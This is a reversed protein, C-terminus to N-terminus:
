VTLPQFHSGRYSQGPSALSHALAGNGFICKSQTILDYNLVARGNVTVFDSEPFKRARCHCWRENLESRANVDSGIQIAREIEGFQKWQELIEANDEAIYATESTGYPRPGDPFLFKVVETLKSITKRFYMGSRAFVTFSAMKVVIRKRNRDVVSQMSKCCHLCVRLKKFKENLDWKFAIKIM